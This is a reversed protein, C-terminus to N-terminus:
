VSSRLFNPFTLFIEFIRSPLAKHKYYGDFPIDFHKLRRTREVKKRYKVQGLYKMSFYLCSNCTLSLKNMEKM